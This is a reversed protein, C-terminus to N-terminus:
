SPRDDPTPLAYPGRMGQGHVQDAQPRPTRTLWESPAYGQWTGPSSFPAHWAPPHAPALKPQPIDIVALLVMLGWLMRDEYVNGSFMANILFFVLLARVVHGYSGVPIPRTLAFAVLGVFVALGVLGHEAGLQLIANHPYVDGSAPWVYNASTAEFGGTGVGVAPNAEFMAAAAGFLRVRASSSLDATSPEAGSISGRVFDGFLEFRTTSADPLDVAGSMVIVGSILAVGAAALARRANIAGPRSLLRVLSFTGLLLLAVIPGRSGSALAVFVAASGLAVLILRKWLRGVKPM